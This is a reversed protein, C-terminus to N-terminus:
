CRAFFFCDAWGHILQSNRGHADLGASLRLPKQRAVSQRYKPNDDARRDDHDQEVPGQQVSEGDVTSVTHM